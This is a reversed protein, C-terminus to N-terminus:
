PKDKALAARAVAEAATGLPTLACVESLAQELRRVRERLASNEADILAWEERSWESGDADHANQSDVSNTTLPQVAPPPSAVFPHVYLSETWLAGPTAASDIRPPMGAYHNLYAVPESQQARALYERIDEAVQSGLEDGMRDIEDLAQKLLEREQM